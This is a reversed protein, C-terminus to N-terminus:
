NSEPNFKPDLNPCTGWAPNWHPLIPADGYRPCRDPVVPKFKHILWVGPAVEVYIAIM